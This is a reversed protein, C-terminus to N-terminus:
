HFDVTDKELIFTVSQTLDCCHFSAQRVEFFLEAELPKPDVEVWTGCKCCRALYKGDEAIKSNAM